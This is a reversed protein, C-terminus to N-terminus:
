RIRGCKSMVTGRELKKRFTHRRPATTTATAVMAAVGRGRRSAGQAKGDGLGDVWFVGARGGGLVWQVRNDWATVLIAGSAM